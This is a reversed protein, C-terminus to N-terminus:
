TIKKIADKEILVHELSIGHAKGCICQLGSKLFDNIELDSVNEINLEM